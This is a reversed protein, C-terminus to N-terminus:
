LGFLLFRPCESWFGVSIEWYVYRFELTDDDNYGLWGGKGDTLGMFDCSSSALVCFAKLLWRGWWKLTKDCNCQNCGTIHWGCVLFVSSKLFGDFELFFSWRRLNSVISGLYRWLRAESLWNTRSRLRIWIVDLIYFISPRPRWFNFYQDNHYCGNCDYRAIPLLERFEPASERIQNKM